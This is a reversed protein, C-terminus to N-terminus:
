VVFVSVPQILQTGSEDFGEHRRRRRDTATDDDVNQFFRDGGLLSHGFLPHELFGRSLTCHTATEELSKNDRPATEMTFESYRLIVRV